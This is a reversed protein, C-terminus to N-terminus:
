GKLFSKLRLEIDLAKLEIKLTKSPKKDLFQNIHLIPDYISTQRIHQHSNIYLLFVRKKSCLFCHLHISWVNVVEKVAFRNTRCPEFCLFAVTKAETADTM